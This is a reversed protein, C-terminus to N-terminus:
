LQGLIDFGEKVLTNAKEHNGAEAEEVGELFKEYADIIIGVDDLRNISDQQLNQPTFENDITSEFASKSDTARQQGTEWEERAETFEQDEYHGQGAELRVFALHINEYGVAYSEAGDIARRNTLDLHDLPKGTYALEPEDLADSDLNELVTAMDDIATRADELVKQADAFTDAARQHLENDGLNSAEALVQFYVNVAEYYALSLEQFDAVLRAQDIRVILEGSPDAAEEAADLDERASSVRDQLAGVMDAEFSSEAWDELTAKNRILAEVAAEYHDVAEQNPTTPTPSPTPSPSETPTPEPTSGGDGGGSSCGAVIAAGFTSLSSLLQRRNMPREVTTGSM